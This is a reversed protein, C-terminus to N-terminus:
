AAPVKCNNATKMLEQFEPSQEEKWEKRAEKLERGVREYEERAKQFEPSQQALEEQAERLEGAIREHEEVAARKHEKLFREHEEDDPLKQTKFVHLILQNQIESFEEGSRKYKELLEQIKPSQQALENWVEELKEQIRRFGEQISQYEPSEILIKSYKQRAEICKETYPDQAYTGLSWFVLVLTINM